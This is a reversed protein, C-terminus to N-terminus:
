IVKETKEADTANEINKETKPENWSQRISTGFILYITNGLIYIFSSLYFVKRWEAADSEDKIIAGAALPAIISIINALANTIGLMTGAFNPAMDLHVLMFGTFHGANLGVVASLIGVALTINGAPVYALGILAIAPGIFGISNSIKRAATTSVWGKALAYDSIFGVPFSLIYMVIYPTASLVGNAKINVGLVQSMYSPIETMLTWFGWNQCCHVIILSIFPMSTLLSVWPMPLTKKGGVQGLSTQIYLKEEESILKSNQPEGAGIFIYVLTWIVGCTGVFYFIAPWGWYDALFGASMLMVATGLQAGAYIFTGLRSKEELPVWKGILNHMSPYIFGQALGQLVRCACVAYWGGYVAATPLILSIISNAGVSISILLSGGVKEALLGGPVQLVVYGWFFSSLIVSQVQMNWDFTNEATSDTMAVIAMSMNVRMAFALLMAFFLMVCQVHRIGLAAEQPLPNYKGFALFVKTFKKVCRVIKVQIRPLQVVM